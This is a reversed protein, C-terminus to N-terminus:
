IYKLQEDSKWQRCLTYGDMVPMLIDSVILDPPNAHAKDLADRGNEATNVEFGEEEVLSTLTDLSTEDDDVILIKKAM